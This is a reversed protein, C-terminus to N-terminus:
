EKCIDALKDDYEKLILPYYADYYYQIDDLDYDKLMQRYICKAEVNMVKQVHVEPVKGDCWDEAKKQFQSVYGLYEAFIIFLPAQITAVVHEVNDSFKELDKVNGEWKETSTGVKTESNNM